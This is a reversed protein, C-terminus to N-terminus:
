FWNENESNVNGAQLPLLKVREGSLVRNTQNLNTQPQPLSRNSTKRNNASPPQPMKRASGSVSPPQPLMKRQSSRNSAPKQYGENIYGGSGGGSKDDNIINIQGNQKNFNISAGAPKFNLVPSPSRSGSQQNRIIQNNNNRIFRNDIIQSPTPTTSRSSSSKMEISFNPSGTNSNLYNNNNNNNIKQNQKQINNHIVKNFNNNFDIQFQQNYSGYEGTTPIKNTTTINNSNYNPTSSNVTNKFSRRFNFHTEDQEM